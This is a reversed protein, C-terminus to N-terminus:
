GALFQLFGDFMDSRHRPEEFGIDMMNIASIQVQKRRLDFCYM